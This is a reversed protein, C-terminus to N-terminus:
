VEVGHIADVVEAPHVAEPRDLQVVGRKTKFVGPLRGGNSHLAGHFAGDGGDVLEAVGDFAHVRDM